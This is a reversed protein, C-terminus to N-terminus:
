TCSTVVALTEALKKANGRSVTMEVMTICYLRGVLFTQKWRAYKMSQEDIWKFTWSLILHHTFHTISTIIHKTKGIGRNSGGKGQDRTWLCRSVTNGGNEREQLLVSPSHLESVKVRLPIINFHMLLLYSFRNAWLLISIVNFNYCNYKLLNFNLILFYFSVSFFLYIPILNLIVKFNFILFM